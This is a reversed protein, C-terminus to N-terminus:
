PPLYFPGIVSLFCQHFSDSSQDNAATRPFPAKEPALRYLEDIAEILPFLGNQRGDDFYTRCNEVFSNWELAVGM